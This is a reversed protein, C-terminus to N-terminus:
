QNLSLLLNAVDMSANPKAIKLAALKLQDLKSKDDLLEDIIKYAEAPEDVKIAAGKHTLFNTNNIEQGPIPKVIVMPLGISLVEATTVGGPKSLIIKSIHMLEHINQIFGDKKVRSLNLFNSFQTPTNEICYYLLMQRMRLFDEEYNFIEYGAISKNFVHYIEGTVLMEKRRM